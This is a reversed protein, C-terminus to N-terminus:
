AIVYTLRRGDHMYVQSELEALCEGLFGTAMCSLNMTGSAWVGYMMLASHWTLPQRDEPLKREIAHSEVGLKRDLTAEFNRLAAFPGRGQRVDEQRTSDSARSQTDVATHELKEASTLPQQPRATQADPLLAPEGHQQQQQQKEIDINDM